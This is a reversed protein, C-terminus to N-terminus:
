LDSCSQVAVGVVDFDNTLEKTPYQPNIPKLFCESEDFVIQRFLTKSRDKTSQALVYDEHHPRITPDFIAYSGQTFPSSAGTMSDNIITVAFSNVSVDRTTPIFPVARDLEEAGIESMEILPVFRVESDHEIISTPRGEMLETPNIRLAHALNFLHTARINEAKGGEWLHITARTVGTRRAVETVTLKKSLRVSRIRKSLSM